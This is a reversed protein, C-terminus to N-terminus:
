TKTFLVLLMYYCFSIYMQPLGHTFYYKITNQFDHTAKGGKPQNRSTKQFLIDRHMGFKFQWTKQRLRKLASFVPTHWWLQSIVNLQWIFGYMNTDKELNDNSKYKFVFLFIFLIYNVTGQSYNLCKYYSVKYKLLIKPDRTFNQNDTYKCHEACSGPQELISSECLAIVTSVSWPPISPSRNLHILVHSHTRSYPFYQEM